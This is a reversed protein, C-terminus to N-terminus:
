ARFMMAPSDVADAKAVKGEGIRRSWDEATAIFRELTTELVARDLSAAAVALTSSWAGPQM